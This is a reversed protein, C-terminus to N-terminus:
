KVRHLGRLAASTGKGTQSTIELRWGHAAAIGEVIALGLGAGGATRTFYPKTVQPLDEAPIGKGTDRVVVDVVHGMTHAAISIEGGAECAHIANILLNLLARRLLEGDAEVVMETDGPILRIGRESAEQEVLAYLNKVLEALQVPGSHAEVPRALGLFGNIQGVIRDAEDVIQRAHKRVEDGANESDLITQAHGRVLGLPNKTEHALGAGLQALEEHHASREQARALEMTMRRRHSAVSLAMWALGALLIAAVIYKASAQRNRKDTASTDLAVTLVIPSDGWPLMAGEAEEAGRNGGRGWGQGHGMGWGRGPGPKIDMEPSRLLLLGQSYHKRGSFAPMREPEGTSVIEKGEKTALQVAVVGPTQAVSEFVDELRDARYRGLNTQMQASATLADLITKGREELLRINAACEDIYLRGIIFWGAFVLLAMTIVWWRGMTRNYKLM